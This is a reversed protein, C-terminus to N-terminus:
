TATTAPEGPDVVGNGCVLTQTEIGLAEAEALIVPRPKYANVLWLILQDVQQPSGPAGSQGGPIVELIDPGEPRMRAVVRRNPGSGFMFENLGDARASHSSADVVNYGGARAFGPLDPSVNDPSGVPPISLQPSLISDLRLRHLYGWRYDEQNTSEGFAPAFEPSAAIALAQQVSQLLIIDRADEADTIGPVVFFNLLSAGTGGQTPYVELLRKLGKMAENSGPAYADLPVPLSALTTDLTRQIIQGRWLAYITAAVSNDIETQSPPVPAAPNDFPDFGQIIGTPTSFDWASLRGIAEVIAPDAGIAALTPDAGPATANAFADLIYPMLVEADLLQNNAQMQIGELQSVTGGGALLDDVMRQMRGMRMGPAYGPSLYLAGNFGPRFQNYSVNDLSTGIPDNNANIIYGQSPNVIQPMEDFPLIEHPVAQNPQPNLVPLWDHALTNTGDRVLSPPRCVTRSSASSCTPACRCSPM